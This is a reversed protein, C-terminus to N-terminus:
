KSYLEVILQEKANLAIEDRKPIHLVKGKIAQADSELWVPLGRHEAKAVSEGICPIKKASESPEVIDGVKMRRSAIDVKRGNVLFHGHTVLQRAQNRNAAFGLRYVVNDLRLELSQLLMEGTIGKKKAAAEFYNRFQRELLGYIRRVKQKEKLQLAYDSFKVRKQGHLGPAYKRREMACKDTLCRDGKLLLKDGDRRCLRCLPERYRAM